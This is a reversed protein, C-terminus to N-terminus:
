SILDEAPSRFAEHLVLAVAGLATSRHGLSAQVIDTSDFAAQMSREAATERLSDLILDGAQSVRGGVVVRGPNLLNILDAVAIGLFRGADSYLQQSLADGQRAAQEVDLVTLHGNSAVERLLTPQGVQVARLARQAIAPGGAMAELCGYSGCTCPPGDVDITVHGIEGAAGTHGHYICGDIIIGCGIGTAVKIYALNDVGQGAGYTLEGFAGLNADNDLYVPAGFSAGAEARVPVRDWGPMIPPSIITGTTRNLPGPVGIGVGILQSAQVGAQILAERGIETIKTLGVEPGQSVDFPYQVEALIQGYLDTVLALLHIAGTDISLVYNARHNFDLLIPRRGGRSKGTGSESLWGEDILDSVINSVTSRSLRTQRSIDIRSITRQQRVLNLILVKNVERM